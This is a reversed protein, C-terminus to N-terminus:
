TCTYTYFCIYKYLRVCDLLVMYICFYVYKYSKVHGHLVIYIHLLTNFTIKVGASLIDYNKSSLGALDGMAFFFVWLENMHDQLLTQDNFIYLLM